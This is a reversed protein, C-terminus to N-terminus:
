FATKTDENGASDGALYQEIAKITADFNDRWEVAYGDARLRKHFELQHRKPKQGPRKLEIWLGSFPHVPYALFLDPVGSVYKHGAPGRGAGKANEVPILRKLREDLNGGYGYCYDMVSQQLQREAITTTM